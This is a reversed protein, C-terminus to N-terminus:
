KAFTDRCRKPTGSTVISKKDRPQMLFIPPGCTIAVRLNKQTVDSVIRTELFWGAKKEPTMPYTPPHAPPPRTPVAGVTQGSCILSDENEFARGRRVHQRTTLLALPQRRQQTAPPCVV